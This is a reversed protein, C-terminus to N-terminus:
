EGKGWMGLGRHRMRPVFDPSGKTSIAQTGWSDDSFSAPLVFYHEEGCKLCVSPKSSIPTVGDQDPGKWHHPTEPNENCYSSHTTM